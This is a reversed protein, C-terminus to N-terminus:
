APPSGLLPGRPVVVLGSPEPGAERAATVMRMVWEQPTARLRAPTVHLLRLGAATFREHRELTHDLDDVSEHHRRSDIEGGTGHGPIWIDPRGLLRGNLWLEPNLLFAPLRRRRAAVLLLDAAEAEPASAAGRLADGVARRPLAAGRTGGSDLLQALEGPTCAHDAVAALVLARVDRLSRLARAADVVCRAPKAVPLGHRRLVVLGGSARRVRVRTDSARRVEGPVLVDVYPSTPVDRLGWLRCGAVGTVAAGPGASVLAALLLQRESPAAASTLYVGRHLRQWRGAACERDVVRDDVGAARLQCRTLVGERAAALSLARRTAARPM